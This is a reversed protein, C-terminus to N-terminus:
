YDNDLDDIDGRSWGEKNILVAIFQYVAVISIIAFSLTISGYLWARSIELIPIPQNIVGQALEFSSITMLISFFLIVLKSFLVLRKQIKKRFKNVLFNISIHDERRTVAIAALFVMWPFVLQTLSSVFTISFGFLYRSLIELFVVLTLIVMLIATIGDIVRFIHDTIRFKSIEM